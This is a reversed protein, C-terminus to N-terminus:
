ASSCLETSVPGAGQVNPANRHKKSYVLLFLFLLFDNHKSLAMNHHPKKSMEKRCMNFFQLAVASCVIQPHNLQLEIGSNQM